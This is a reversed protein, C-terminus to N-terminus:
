RNKVVIAEITDAVDECKDAANELRGYLEKPM